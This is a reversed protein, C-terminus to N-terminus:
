WPRGDMEIRHAGDAPGLGQDADPRFRHLGGSRPVARVPEDLTLTGVRYQALQLGGTALSIQAVRCSTMNASLSSSLATLPLVMICGLGSSDDVELM